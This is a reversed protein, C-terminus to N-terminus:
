IQTYSYYYNNNANINYSINNAYYNKNYSKPYKRKNAEGMGIATLITADGDGVQEAVYAKARKFETAESSACGMFKLNM